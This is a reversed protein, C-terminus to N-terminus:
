SPLLFSFSSLPLPSLLLFSSTSLSSLPCLPFVLYFLPLLLIFCLHLSLPSYRLLYFLFLLLSPSILLSLPISFSFSSSLTPSFSTLPFVPPSRHLLLFIYSSFSFAKGFHGRVFRWDGNAWLTGLERDGFIYIQRFEKNSVHVLKKKTFKIAICQWEWRDPVCVLCFLLDCISFIRSANEVM